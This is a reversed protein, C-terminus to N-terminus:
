KNSELTYLRESDLKLMNTYQSFFIQENKLLM